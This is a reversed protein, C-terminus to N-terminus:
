KVISNKDFVKKIQEEINYRANYYQEKMVWVKLTFTLSTGVQKTLRVFIDKEKNVLPEKELVEMIVKKVKDVDNSNNVVFDMDLRLMDSASDNTISSNSLAGNPIVIKKNENTILVTYFIGIEKVLGNGNGTEIYDGVKFPKFILILLGGVLNTLGGQLALGVALSCTGLLTLLSTMPIGLYSLAAIVIIIKLVVSVFSIIFTRVSADLRNFGRGKKLIKILLKVLQFGVVIILIFIILKIGADVGIDLLKDIVKDM